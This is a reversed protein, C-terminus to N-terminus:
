DALKPPMQQVHLSSAEQSSQMLIYSYERATLDSAPWLHNETLNKLERHKVPLRSESLKCAQAESPCLSASCAIATHKQLTGSWHTQKPSLKNLVSFHVCFPLESSSSDNLVLSVRNGGFQYMHHFLIHDEATFLFRNVLTQRESIFGSTSLDSCIKHM